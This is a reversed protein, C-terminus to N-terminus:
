ALRAAWPLVRKAVTFSQGHLNPRRFLPRALVRGGRGRSVAMHQPLSTINVCADVGVLIQEVEGNVCSLFIILFSFIYSRRAWLVCVLFSLLSPLYLAKDM